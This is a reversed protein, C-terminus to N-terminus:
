KLIVGLMLLDKLELIIRKCDFDYGHEVQFHCRLKWLTDYVKRRGHKNCYPCSLRVTLTFVTSHTPTGKDTYKRVGKIGICNELIKQEM